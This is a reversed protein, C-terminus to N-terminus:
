IFFVNKMTKSLGDNQSFFFLSLFYHACAKFVKTKISTFLKQGSAVVFSVNVQKFDLIKM